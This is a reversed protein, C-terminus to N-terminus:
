VRLSGNAFLVDGLHVAVFLGDDQDGLLEGIRRMGRSWLHSMGSLCMHGTM